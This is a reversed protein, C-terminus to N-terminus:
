VSLTEGYTSLLDEQIVRRLQGMFMKLLQQTSILNSCQTVFPTPTAELRIRLNGLVQNIAADTQIYDIGYSGTLGLEKAKRDVCSIIGATVSNRLHLPSGLALVWEGVRLSGSNGLKVTPLSDDSHIALLALDSARLAHFPWFNTIGHILM